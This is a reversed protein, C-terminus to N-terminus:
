VQNVAESSSSNFTGCSSYCFVFFLLFFLPRLLIWMMRVTYPLRSFSITKVQSKLPTARALWLVCRSLATQVITRHDYLTNWHKDNMSRITGHLYRIMWNTIKHTHGHTHALARSSIQQPEKTTKYHCSVRVSTRECLGLARVLSLRLSNTQVSNIKWQRKKHLLEGANRIMFGDGKKANMLSSNNNASCENKCLVRRIVGVRSLLTLFKIIKNIIELKQMFIKSLHYCGALFFVWQIM